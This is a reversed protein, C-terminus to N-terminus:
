FIKRYFEEYKEKEKEKERELTLEIYALFSIDWVIGISSILKMERFNYVAGLILLLTFVILILKLLVKRRLRFLITQYWETYNKDAIVPLSLLHFLPEKYLINKYKHKTQTQKECNVIVDNIDYCVIFQNNVYEQDQEYNNYINSNYITDAFSYIEEM